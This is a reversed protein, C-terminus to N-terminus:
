GGLQGSKGEWSVVKRGRTDTDLHGSVLCKCQVTSCKSVGCWFGASPMSQLMTVDRRVLRCGHEFADLVALPGGGGATRLPADRVCEARPLWRSADPRPVDETISSGQPLTSCPVPLPCGILLSGPLAFLPDPRSM